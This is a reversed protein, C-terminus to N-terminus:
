QEAGGMKVRYRRPIEVVGADPYLAWAERYVKLVERERGGLQDLSAGMASLSEAKEKAGASLDKMQRADQLAALYQGKLMYQRWRWSHVQRQKAPSLKGGALVAEAERLIREQYRDTYRSGYAEIELREYLMRLEEPMGAALRIAEDAEALARTFDGSGFSIYYAQQMLIGADQPALERARALHEAAPKMQGLCSLRVGENAWAAACQEDAALAATLDKAAEEPRDLEMYVWARQALLGAAKPNEALGQGCLALAEDYKEVTEAATVQQSWEEATQASAAPMGALLLGGLCFAAIGQRM